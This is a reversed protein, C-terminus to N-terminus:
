EARTHDSGDTERVSHGGEEVSKWVGKATGMSGAYEGWRVSLFYRLLDLCPLAGGVRNIDVGDSV